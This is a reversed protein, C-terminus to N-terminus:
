RTVDSAAVTAVHSSVAMLRTCRRMEDKVDNAATDPILSHHVDLPLASEHTADKIFNSARRRFNTKLNLKHIKLRFRYIKLRCNHIQLSFIFKGHSSAM